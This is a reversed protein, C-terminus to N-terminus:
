GSRDIRLNDVKRALATPDNHSQIRVEMSQQRERSRSAWGHNANPNFTLPCLPKGSQQNVHQLNALVIQDL